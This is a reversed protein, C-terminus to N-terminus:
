QVFAQVIGPEVSPQGSPEIQSAIMPLAIAHTLIQL